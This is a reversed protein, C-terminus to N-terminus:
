SFYNLNSNLWKEVEKTSMQKRLAYDEVQDKSIKGISFYKAESNAFYLGSVSSAPYMALNETLSIGINNEVDLIDFITLKETHDPQAPYGPAPRIGIYKEKIMEETTINEDKAYGWLETRVKKHLLEAFAEALRDALAKVMIINYEDHDAQYKEIIKEIGIGSTVAFMGIFDNKGSDKPAIFDALALNKSNESKKNQQRITYLKTILEKSSNDKYIEIDDDVANASFIGVIGNATFLKEDIINQLLNQADAYLKQAESGYTEDEFIDPYKGKMEWTRFFPTWDIVKTL